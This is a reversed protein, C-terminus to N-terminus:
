SFSAIALNSRLLTFAGWLIFIWPGLVIFSFLYLFPYSFKLQRLNLLILLPYNRKLYCSFLGASILSTVFPYLLGNFRELSYLIAFGLWGLFVLVCLARLRKEDKRLKEVENKNIKIFNLKTPTIRKEGLASSLAVLYHRLAEFSEFEVNDIRVKNKLNRVHGTPVYKIAKVADEVEKVNGHSVWIEITLGFTDKKYILFNFNGVTLVFGRESWGGGSEVLAEVIRILGLEKM